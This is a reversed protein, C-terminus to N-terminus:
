VTVSIINCVKSLQRSEETSHAGRKVMVVEPPWRVAAALARASVRPLRRRTGPRVAREGVPPEVVAPGDRFNHSTAGYPTQKNATVFVHPKLPPATFIVDNYTGGLERPISQEPYRTSVEPLGWVTLELARNVLQEPWLVDVPVGTTV